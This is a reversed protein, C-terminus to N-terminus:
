GTRPAYQNLFTALFAGRIAFPTATAMPIREARAGAEVLAMDVWDPTAEMAGIFRVLESPSDDVADIGGACATELMEVLRHLGLEPILAAYADAVVDGTMTANRIIEMLEPQDFVRDVAGRMSAFREDDAAADDLREPVVTFDVDGYIAPIDDRQRAVRDAYIPTPVGM